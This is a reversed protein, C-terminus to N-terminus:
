YDKFLIIISYYYWLTGIRVFVAILKIKLWNVVM